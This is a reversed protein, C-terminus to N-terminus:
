RDCPGCRRNLVVRNIRWIDSIKAARSKQWAGSQPSNPCQVSTSASHLHIKNFKL